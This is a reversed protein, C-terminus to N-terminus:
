KNKAAYIGGIFGFLHGSWSVGAVPILLSMLAGGYVLFVLISTIIAKPSRQYYGLSLLYGMLGFVVGSAGIHVSNSSGVIWTGLGGVIMIVLIARIALNRDYAIAVLLLVFLALSNAILHALSAHIFPAFFIGVLGILEHPHIGLVQINFPLIWGVVHVIWIFAVAIFSWYCSKKLDKM